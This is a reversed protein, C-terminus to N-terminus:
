KEAIAVWAATRVMGSNKESELLCERAVEGWREKQEDTLGNRAGATFDSMMVKM